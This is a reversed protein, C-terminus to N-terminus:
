PARQHEDAKFVIDTVLNEKAQCISDAFTLGVDDGGFSPSHATKEININESWCIEQSRSHISGLERGVRISAIL